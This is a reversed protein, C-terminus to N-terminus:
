LTLQDIGLVGKSTSVCHCPIPFLPDFSSQHFYTGAQMQHDSHFSLFSLHKSPLVLLEWIILILHRLRRNKQHLCSKTPSTSLKSSNIPWSYIKQITKPNSFSPLGQPNAFGEEDIGQHARKHSYLTM